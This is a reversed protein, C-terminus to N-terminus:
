YSPILRVISPHVVHEDKSFCRCYHDRHRDSIGSGDVDYFDAISCHREKALVTVWDERDIRRVTCFANSTRRYGQDTLEKAFTIAVLKDVEDTVPGYTIDDFSIKCKFAM